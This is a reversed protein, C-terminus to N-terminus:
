LFEKLVTRGISGSTDVAIALDLRESRPSPYYIGHQLLRRDPKMWDYDERAHRLIYRRLVRRWDVGPELIEEVIRELAKPMRGEGRAFASSEASRRKWEESIEGKEFDGEEAECWAGHDDLPGKGREGGGTPGEQKGHAPKGGSGQPEDDTGRRGKEKTEEELESYIEEASEDKFKQSPESSPPLNFGSEKLVWNVAEDTAPNWAEESRGGRRWQHGLATHLIGHAISAKVESEPLEDVADPGFYLKEHDTAVPADLSDDRELELYSGLYGFFPNDLLLQVRAKKMKEEEDM